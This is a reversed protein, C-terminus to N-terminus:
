AYHTFFRSFWYFWLSIKNKIELKKKVYKKKKKKENTADEDDDAIRKRLIKKWFDRMISM